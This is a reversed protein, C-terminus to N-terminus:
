SKRDLASDLTLISGSKAVLADTANLYVQEAYANISSNSAKFVIGSVNTVMSDPDYPNYTRAAKTAAEGDTHLVIGGNESYLYQVNETKIRLGGNTSSFDLEGRAAIGVNGGVKAILNRNPQVILDKAPQIYINGGEMNIASGWADALSIGGNGMLSVWSKTQT